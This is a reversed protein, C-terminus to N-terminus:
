EDNKVQTKNTKKQRSIIRGQSLDYPSIEVKVRDGLLFRIYHKRMKASPQALIEHGSDLRVKFKTGPLAEAIIGSTRINNNSEEDFNDEKSTSVSTAIPLNTVPDLLWMEEIKIIELIPDSDEFMKILELAGDAPMELVVVVSGATVQLIRIQEPPIAVLRSLTFILIEQEYTTFNAIDRELLITLKSTTNRKTDNDLM